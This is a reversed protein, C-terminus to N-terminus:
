ESLAEKIIAKLDDRIFSWTNMIATYTARYIADETPTNQEVAGVHKEKQVPVKEKETPEGEPRTTLEGVVYVDKPIGMSEIVAVMSNTMFGNSAATSISSSGFGADVSFDTIHAYGKDWIAGYLKAKDVKYRKRNRIMITTTNRMTKQVRVIM